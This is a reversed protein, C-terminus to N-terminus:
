QHIRKRMVGGRYYCLQGVLRFIRRVFIITGNRDTYFQDIAVQLQRTDLESGLSKAPPLV